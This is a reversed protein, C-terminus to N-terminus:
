VRKKREAEVKDWMAKAEEEALELELLKLQERLEHCRRAQEGFLTAGAILSPHMKYRDTLNPFLSPGSPDNGLSSSGPGVAYGARKLLRGLPYFVKNLEQAFYAPFPSEARGRRRLYDYIHYAPTDPYSDNATFCQQMWAEPFLEELLQPVDWALLETEDMLEKIGGLTREQTVLFDYRGIAATLRPYSAMIEPSATRRFATIQSRMMGLAQEVDAKVRSVNGSISM